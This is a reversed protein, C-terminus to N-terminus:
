MTYMPLTYSKRSPSKKKKWLLRLNVAFNPPLHLSKRQVGQGGVGTARGMDVDGWWLTVDTVTPSGHRSAMVVWLGSNIEPSM